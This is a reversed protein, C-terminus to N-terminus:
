GRNRNTRADGTIRSDLLGRRSRLGAGMRNLLATDNVKASRLSSSIRELAMQAGLLSRGADLTNGDSFQRHAEEM